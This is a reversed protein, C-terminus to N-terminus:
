QYQWDTVKYTYCNTNNCGIYDLLTGLINIGDSTINSWPYTDNPLFNLILRVQPSQTTDKRVTDKPMWPFARRSTNNTKRM